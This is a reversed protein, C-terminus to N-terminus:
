RRRWRLQADVGIHRLETLGTTSSLQGQLRLQVYRGAIRPDLQRTTQAQLLTGVTQSQAITQREQEYARLEVTLPYLTSGDLGLFLKNIEVAREAGEDTMYGSQWDIDVTPVASASAARVAFQYLRLKNTSLEYDCIGPVPGTLPTWIHGAPPQLFTGQRSELHYLLIRTTSGDNAGLFWVVSDIAPAWFAVQPEMTAYNAKYPTFGDEEFFRGSFLDEDGNPTAHRSSLGDFLYLGDRNLYYAQTSTAVVGNYREYDLAFNATVTQQRYGITGGVKDLRVLASSLVVFVAGGLTFATVLRGADPALLYGSTWQPPSNTLDPKWEDYTDPSSWRMRLRQDVWNTDDFYDTGGFALLYEDHQLMHVSRPGEHKNIGRVDPLAVPTTIPTADTDVSWWYRWPDEETLTEAPPEGIIGVSRRRFLTSALLARLANADTSGAFTYGNLASLDTATDITTSTATNDVALEGQATDIRGAYVDVGGGGNQLQTYLLLMKQDSLIHVRPFITNSNGAPPTITYTDGIPNLVDLIPIVGTRTPLGNQLRQWIGVPNNHWSLEGQQGGTLPLFKPM